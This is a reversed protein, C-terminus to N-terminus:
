STLSRCYELIEPDIAAQDPVLVVYGFGDDGTVLVLEFWGGACDVYEWPPPHLTHQLVGEIDSFRDGLEVLVVLCLENLPQDSSGSLRDRLAALNNAAGTEIESHLGAWTTITRM